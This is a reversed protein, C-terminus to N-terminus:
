NLEISYLKDKELTESIRLRTGAREFDTPLKEVGRGFPIEFSFILPEDETGPQDQLTLQYKNVEPTISLYDPLEYVFKLTASKSHEVTFTTAMSTRGAEENVQVGSTINEELPSGEAGGTKTADLLKTGIPTLIRLYNKYPGGPWTNSTGTHVYTLNLEGVLRGNRSQERVSYNITKDIYYNAKNGGVNADVVYLYDGSNQSVSGDWGRSAIVQQFAINDTVNILLHKEKLSTGIVTALKSLEEREMTFLQDLVAQGLSALFTKKFNAGEVYGGESHMEAKEFLNASTVEENYTALIIPGTVELLNQMFQLDIAFVGNPSVGVELNYIQKIDESAEPFSVDWNADRLFFRDQNLHERIPAPPEIIIGKELLLGDPNYVDDIKLDTIKGKELSIQAYSGIFGGTPRIENSNQMLLLYKKEGDFGLVSPSHRIITELDRLNNKVLAIERISKEVKNSVFAPLLELKTAKFEAETLLIDKQAGSLGALAQQFDEEEFGLTEGDQGIVVSGWSELLKESLPQLGTSAKTVASAAFRSGLVIKAVETQRDGLGVGKLVVELKSLQKAAKGFSEEAQKGSTQALALDFGRLATEAEDLKTAGRNLHFAFSVTPVLFFYLGVVTLTALIGWYASTKKQKTPKKIRLTPIKPLQSLRERPRELLSSEEEEPGDDRGFESTPPHTNIKQLTERLGAELETKALWDLTQLDELHDIRLRYSLLTDLTASEIIQVEKDSLAILLQALQRSSVPKEPILPLTKGRHKPSFMAQVLGEVADFIHLYYHKDLGAEPIYLNRSEMLNLILHGLPADSSFDMGPGYVHPLRVVRTDLDHKRSNEHLLAEAFEKANTHLYSEKSKAPPSTQLYLNITSSLLVRAKKITALELVQQTGHSNLRLDLLSSEMAPDYNVQTSALHFIYDVEKVVTKLDGSALDFNIFSFNKQQRLDQLNHYSGVSLNDLGIVRSNRNLLRKILNIGLFRAAGTVLITPQPASEPSNFM